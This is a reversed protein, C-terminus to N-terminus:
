ATPGRGSIAGARDTIGVARLATLFDRYRLPHYACYDAGLQQARDEDGVFSCVIVPLEEGIGSERPKV